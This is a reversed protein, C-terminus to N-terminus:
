EVIVYHKLYRRAAKELFDEIPSKWIIRSPRTRVRSRKLPLCRRNTRSFKRRPFGVLLAGPFKKLVDVAHALTERDINAYTQSLHGIKSPAIVEWKGWRHVASNELIARILSTKGSGNTGCIAVREGHHVTLQVGSLVAATEGGCSVVGDRITVVRGGHNEGGDIYFTPIISM